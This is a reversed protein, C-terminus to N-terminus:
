AQEGNYVGGITLILRPYQIEVGTIKWKAGNIVAYALYQTNELAFASALVSLTNNLTLNDNVEGSSETRGVMRTLDGYSERELIQPEWVGPYTEETIAYGLKGCWKAM